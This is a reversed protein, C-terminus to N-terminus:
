LWTLFNHILNCFQGNWWEQDKTNKIKNEIFFNLLSLSSNFFTFYINTIATVGIVLVGFCTSSASKVDLPGWHALQFPLTALSVSLVVYIM